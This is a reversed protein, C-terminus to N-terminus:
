TTLSTSFYLVEEPQRTIYLPPPPRGGSDEMNFGKIMMDLFTFGIYLILLHAEYYQNLSKHYRAPIVQGLRCHLRVQPTLDMVQNSTYNTNSSGSEKVSAKCQLTKLFIVCQRM